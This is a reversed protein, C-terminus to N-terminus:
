RPRHVEHVRPGNHVRPIAALHGALDPVRGDPQEKGVVLGGPVQVIHGVPGIPLGGVHHDPPNAVVQIGFRM